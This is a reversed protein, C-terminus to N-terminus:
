CVLICTVILQKSSCYALNIAKADLFSIGIQQGMARQYLPNITEM